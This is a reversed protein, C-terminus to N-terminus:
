AKALSNPFKRNESKKMLCQNNLSIFKEHANVPEPHLAQSDDLNRRVIERRRSQQSSLYANKAHFVFSQFITCVCVFFLLLLFWLNEKDIQKVKLKPQKRTTVNLLMNKHVKRKITQYSKTLHNIEHKTTATATKTSICPFHLFESASAASIHKAICVNESFQSCARQFIIFVNKFKKVVLELLYTPCFTSYVTLIHKTGRQHSL